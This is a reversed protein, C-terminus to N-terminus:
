KQGSKNDSDKYWYPNYYYPYPYYPYAPYQDKQDYHSPLKSNNIIKAKIQSIDKIKRISRKKKNNRHKQDKINIVISEQEETLNYIILISVLSFILILVATLLPETEAVKLIEIYFNNKIPEIFGDNHHFYPRLAWLLQPASFLIIFYGMILPAFETGNKHINHFIRYIFFLGCLLAMVGISINLLIIFHVNATTISFLLIVPAFAVMILATISFGSLLIVTMQELRFRKNLFINFVFFVPLSIYILSFLIIPIKIANFVIQPGGLFFGTVAGYIITFILILLNLRYIIKNLNKQNLINNIIERSNNLINYM